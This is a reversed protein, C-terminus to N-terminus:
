ILMGKSPWTWVKKLLGIWHCYSLAVSYEAFSGLNQQVMDYNDYIALNGGLDLCIDVAHYYPRDDIFTAYCNTLILHVTVLNINHMALDSFRYTDKCASVCLHLYRLIVVTSLTFFLFTQVVGGLSWERGKEM